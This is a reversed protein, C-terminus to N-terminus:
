RALYIIPYIESRLERQSISGQFGKSASCREASQIKPEFVIKSNFQEVELAAFKAQFGGTWEDRDVKLPRKSVPLVEASESEDCGPRYGLVFRSLSREQFPQECDRPVYHRLQLDLM